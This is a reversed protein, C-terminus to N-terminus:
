AEMQNLDDMFVIDVYPKKAEYEFKEKTNIKIFGFMAGFIAIKLGEKQYKKLLGDGWRFLKKTVCIGGKYKKLIEKLDKPLSSFYPVHRYGKTYKGLPTKYNTNGILVFDFFTIFFHKYNLLAPILFYKFISDVRVHSFYLPFSTRSTKFIKDFEIIIQPTWTFIIISDLIKHKKCTDFIFQEYGFDKLDIALNQGKKRHKAFYQILDNFKSIHLDNYEYRYSEIESWTKEAFRFKEKGHVFYSDHYVYAIDDSSFRLDVEIYKINTTLVEMFADLTNEEFNWVRARHSLLKEYYKVDRLDNFNYNKMPIAKGLNASYLKNTFEDSTYVINDQIALDEIMKNPGLFTRSIALRYNKGTLLRELNLEYIFDVGFRNVSHFLRKKDKPIFLGQTFYSSEVSFFLSCEFGKNQRFFQHFDMIYLKNDTAFSTVLLYETGNIEVIEFSGFQRDEKTLRVKKILELELKDKLEKFDFQYIYNSHYDISYFKNKYIKLGSTHTAEAPLVIEKLVRLKKNEKNFIILISKKDKKHITHYLTDEHTVMGQAVYKENLEALSFREQWQLQGISKESSFYEHIPTANHTIKSKQLM